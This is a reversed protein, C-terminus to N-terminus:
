ESYDGAHDEVATRQGLVTILDHEDSKLEAIAYDLGGYRLTANFQVNDIGGFGSTSDTKFAFSRQRVLRWGHRTKKRVTKEPGVLGTLTTPTTSNFPIYEFPAGQTHMLLPTGGGAILTGHLSM